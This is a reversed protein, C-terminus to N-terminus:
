LLAEGPDLSVGGEGRLGHLEAEFPGPNANLFQCRNTEVVLREELELPDQLRVEPHTWPPEGGEKPRSREPDFVLEVHVPLEPVRERPILSFDEIGFV